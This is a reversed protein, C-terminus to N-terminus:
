KTKSRFDEMSATTCSQEQEPTVVAVLGESDYENDDDGDGDSSSPVTKWTPRLEVVLLASSDSVSSRDSEGISHHSDTLIGSSESDTDLDTFAFPAGDSEHFHCHDDSEANVPDGM